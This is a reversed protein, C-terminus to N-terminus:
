KRLPVVNALEYNIVADLKNEIQYYRLTHRPGLVKEFDARYNHKLDNLKDEIDIADKLIQKAKEATMGDQNDRFDILLKVRRDALETRKEAYERYVPWFAESQKESLDMNLAVVAQRDTSIQSRLVEIMDREQQAGAALPLSLSAAAALIVALSASKM